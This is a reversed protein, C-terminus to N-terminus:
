AVRVIGRAHELASAAWRSSGFAPSGELKDKLRVIEDWGPLFVLIAGMIQPGGAAAAADAPKKFPGEQLARPTPHDPHPHAPCIAPRNLLVSCRKSLASPPPSSGRCTCFCQGVYCSFTAAHCCRVKCINALAPERERELGPVLALLVCESSM